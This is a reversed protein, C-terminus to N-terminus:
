EWEKLGKQKKTIYNFRVLQSFYDMRGNFCQSYVQKNSRMWELPSSGYHRTFSAAQTKSLAIVDRRGLGWSLVMRAENPTFVDLSRLFAMNKGNTDLVMSDVVLEGLFDIQEALKVVPEFQKYQLLKDKKKIIDESDPTENWKFRISSIGSEKKKGAISCLLKMNRKAEFPGCKRMCLAELMVEWPELKLVHMGFADDALKSFSHHARHMDANLEIYDQRMDFYEFWYDYVQNSSCTFLLRDGKQSVATFNRNSIVVYYVADVLRLKEWRLTQGARYTQELNLGPVVISMM